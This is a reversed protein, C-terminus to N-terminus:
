HIIIFKTFSLLSPIDSVVAAKIIEQQQKLNGFVISHNKDVHYSLDNDLSSILSIM